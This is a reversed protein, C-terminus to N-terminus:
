ERLGVPLDIGAEDLLAHLIRRRTDRDDGAAHGRLRVHGVTVLEATWGFHQAAEQLSTIEVPMWPAGDAKMAHFSLAPTDPPCQHEGYPVTFMTHVRGTQRQDTTVRVSWPCGCLFRKVIVGLWPDAIEDAREAVLAIHAADLVTAHTGLRPDTTARIARRPIGLAAVADKVAKTAAHM